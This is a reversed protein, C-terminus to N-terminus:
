QMSLEVVVGTHRTISSTPPEMSALQLSHTSQVVVVLQQTISSTTPEVSALQIMHTSQVVVVLQQTTSSTTPEVPTSCLIIRDAPPCVANLLFSSCSLFATQAIILTIISEVKNYTEYLIYIKGTNYTYVSYRYYQFFDVAHLVAFVAMNFYGVHTDGNHTTQQLTHQFLM